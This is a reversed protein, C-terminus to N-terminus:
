LNFAPNKFMPLGVFFLGEQPKRGIRKKVFAGFVAAKEWRATKGFWCAGGPRWTEMLASRLRLRYFGMDVASDSSRPTFESTDMRM